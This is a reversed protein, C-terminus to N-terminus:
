GKEKIHSRCPYAIHYSPLNHTITAGAGVLSGKEIRINQIITASAGVYVDAETLVQGCLTARPAIHNDRGIQCDHEIIAGTNIITNEGISAGTQIVVSDFIQVGAFLTASPSVIANESIVSEFQYGLKSFKNDLQSRLSSNPMQGIGNVLWVLDPRYNLVDDDNKLHRIGDFILRKSLDDPSVIALIERGQALLLEVLVSAHGGGGLVILPKNM